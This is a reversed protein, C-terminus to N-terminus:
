FFSKLFKNVEKHIVKTAERKLLEDASISVKPSNIDGSLTVKVPNGNANIDIKSNITNAKMNVRANKTQISSHNSKLYLSGLLKEKVIKTKLDGNFKEVYMDIHGYKKVLDLPKNKTFTGSLLKADIAGKQTALDYLIDANVRADFLKPYLTMDLIDLTKLGNLKVKVDDNHLTLALKGDAIDSHMSVDLEKAQSIDGRALLTGKLHHETIFYLKNLDKLKLSYDSKLSNDAINFITKKSHFELLNSYLNVSSIAESNKLKTTAQLSYRTKPMMSSFKMERTLYNADLKGHSIKTKVLGNLTGINANKITVDMDLVGDSYHPLKLAYLAKQIKLSQIKAQISKPKFDGLTMQVVTHSAAFNTKASVQLKKATGRVKGNLKLPGRLDLGSLPKLLGLEKVDVKYTLDLSLPAPVVRGSSSLNALNSHLSYTYDVNDGKLKADVQMAMRTGKPITINFDKKMVLRNLYGQSTSLKVIGDLQHPTINKFNIDLNVKASAYEKEKLIYLLEKLELSSLKAKISSLALKSVEVHYSSDSSAIDSVGEVIFKDLNGIVSGETTLSGQLPKQTLAQLKSLDKFNIRYACNFSKELLSYNAQLTIKNSKNLVLVVEASSFGFRFKELKAELHLEKTIEKELSPKVINNGLPTFLAVYALAVLSLLFVFFVTIYKM